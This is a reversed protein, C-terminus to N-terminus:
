AGTGTTAVRHTIAAVQDPSLIDTVVCNRGMQKAKYLAADARAITEDIQEGPCYEAAGMSITVTGLIENSGRRRIMKTALNARLVNAVREADQVRTQPLLIVFEEGGYRAIIDRGKLNEVLTRAVLRLVHDGILHGHTDNFKKFHDIDVMVFSLLAGSARADAVARAAERDFFKRNGVETLPDIQSERHVRDFDSRMESLQTTTISLETQLKLNQAAVSRTEDAIKAVAERLVDLPADSALKGSFSDLKEGFQSSGKASEDILRMVKELEREVASNADKLFAVEADVAFFKNFLGDCQDQTIKGQTIIADYAENLAPTDGAFYHYYVTYNDPTMALGDRTLRELAKQAWLGTM